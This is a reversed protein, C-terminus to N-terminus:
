KTAQAMNPMMGLGQLMAITDWTVWIEAEKGNEFRSLCFCILSLHKGDLPLGQYSGKITGEYLWRHFVKDGEAVMDLIRVQLDPMGTKMETLYKKFAELGKLETGSPAHYSWDLTVLEEIANLKKANFLEEVIRKIVAKNLEVSM